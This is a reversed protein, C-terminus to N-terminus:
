SRETQSRLYATAIRNYDSDSSVTELAESFAARTQRDSPLRGIAGMLLTTKDSDSSLRKVEGLWAAAAPGTQLAARNRLLAALADRRDSSSSSGAVVHLYQPVAGAPIPLAAAKELVERRDSSSGLKATSALVSGVTGPEGGRVALLRTLVERRDSSSSIGDLARFFGDPLARGRPYKAAAGNLLERRDSGSSVTSAAALWSTWQDATLPRRAATKLLLERRTSGSSIGGLAQIFRQTEAPSLDREALGELFVQRTADSEAAAAEDLVGSVGRRALVRAFRARAGISTTNMVEPFFRDLWPRAEAFPRREGNVTYSRAVGGGAAPRWEARHTASGLRQQMTLYGAPLISEVEAGDERLVLEGGARVDIGKETDIWVHETKGQSSLVGRMDGRLVTRETVTRSAERQQAGCPASALLLASFLLPALRSTRM